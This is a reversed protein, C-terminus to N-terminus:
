ICIIYIYIYICMVDYSMMHPPAARCVCDAFFRGLVKQYEPRRLWLEPDSKHCMQKAESATQLVSGFESRTHQDQGQLLSRRINMTQWFNFYPMDVELRSCSQKKHLTSCACHQAPISRKQKKKERTNGHKQSTQPLNQTMIQAGFPAKCIALLVKSPRGATAENRLCLLLRGSSSLRILLILLHHARKQAPLPKGFDTLRILSKWCLCSFCVAVRLGCVKLSYTKCVERLEM